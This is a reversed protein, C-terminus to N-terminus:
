SYKPLLRRSGPGLCLQLGEERKIELSLFDQITIIKQRSPDLLQQGLNTGGALLTRHHHLQYQSVSM